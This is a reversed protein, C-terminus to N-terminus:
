PNLSFPISDGEDDPSGTQGDQDYIKVYDVSELQKLNVFILNAITYAAGRANCDGTLYVHATGSEVRVESFGTCGNTYVRLGQAYEEDTPGEFLLRLVAEVEDAEPPIERPVPAEYPEVAEVFRQEDTFYVQIERTEEPTASPALDNSGVQCGSVVLSLLVVALLYRRLSVLKSCM